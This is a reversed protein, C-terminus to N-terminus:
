VTVIEETVWVYLCLVYVLIDQVFSVILDNTIDVKNLSTICSICYM